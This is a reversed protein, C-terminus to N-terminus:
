CDGGHKSVCTNCCTWNSMFDNPEVGCAPKVSRPWGSREIAAIISMEERV